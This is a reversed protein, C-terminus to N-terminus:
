FGAVLPLMTIFAVLAFVVGSLFNLKNISRLTIHEPVRHGFLAALCAIYTFWIMSGCGAAIAIWPAAVGSFGHFPLGAAISFSLYGGLRMPMTISLIFTIYFLRSPYTDAEKSKLTKAKPATFMKYAMYIFVVTALIRLAFGLDFPMLLLGYLALLAMGCLVAQALAIGFCVALGAVFGRKVTVQACWVTGSVMAVSYIFGLVLGKFALIEM